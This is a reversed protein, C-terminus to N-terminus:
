DSEELVTDLLVQARAMHSEAIADSASASLNQTKGPSKIDAQVLETSVSVFKAIAKVASAFAKGPVEGFVTQCANTLEASSLGSLMHAAMFMRENPMARALLLALLESEREDETLDSSRLGLLAKWRGTAGSTGRSGRLMAKGAKIFPYLTQMMRTGVSRFGAEVNIGQLVFFTAVFRATWRLAPLEVERSIIKQTISLKEAM